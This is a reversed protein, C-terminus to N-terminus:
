ADIEVQYTNCSQMDIILMGNGPLVGDLGSLYKVAECAQFSALMAPTVAPNGLITEVGRGSDMEEPDCYILSLLPKEPRILALHGLFGAIAGHVIAINLEGCVKELDFRSPLNDLCDIVLDCGSFIAPLNGADGRIHHIVVELSSNVVALRKKAEEVKSCDLNRETAMLQRNLNSDSFVDDDVVVLKGVGMRALLELVVGGLGGAGVVGVTSRLLKLQGKIGVTGMNRQYREPIIGAELASVEIDRSTVNYAAALKGTEALSLSNYFDGAPGKKEVARKKLDGHINNCVM